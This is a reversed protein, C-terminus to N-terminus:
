KIISVADESATSIYRFSRFMWEVGFVVTTVLAGISIYSRHLFQNSSQLYIGPDQGYVTPAYADSLGWLLVTLPLAIWFRGWAGYFAHRSNGVRQEDPRRLYSLKLTVLNDERNPDATFAAAATRGGPSELHLYEYQNQPVMMSLPAEGIYLAGRYLSGGERVTDPLRIEFREQTVPPLTINVEALEGANLDLPATVVAHDAAFAEVEVKGPPYELVGTDGLGAFSNQIMIVAEAPETKVAVMAPPEGSIESALRNALETMASDIYEPSFLLTDEYIVSRAYLAYLKINLNIRGHYEFVEGTLLADAKQNLCFSFEEGEGPPLPFSGSRSSETLLLAPEAAIPPNENEVTQVAEELKKIEEDIVAVQRRYKWDPEGKFLLLDREDRKKQLNKAAEAKTKSWAAGEYYAYEPATRERREVRNLAYVLDKALTDGIFQRGRPMTSVDFASICLTWEKNLPEKAEEQGKGRGFVAPALFTL